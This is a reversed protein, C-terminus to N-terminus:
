VSKNDHGPAKNGSFSKVILFFDYAPSERMIRSLQFSYDMAQDLGESLSPPRWVNKEPPRAKRARERPGGNYDVSYSLFSPFSRNSVIM